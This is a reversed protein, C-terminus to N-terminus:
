DPLLCCFFRESFFIFHFYFCLACRECAAREEYSTVPAGQGGRIPGGDEEFHTLNLHELVALTILNFRMVATLSVCVTLQDSCVFGAFPLNRETSCLKSDIDKVLAQLATWNLVRNLSVEAQGECVRKKGRLVAPFWQM